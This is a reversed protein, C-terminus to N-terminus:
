EHDNETGGFMCFGSLLLLSLTSWAQDSQDFFLLEEFSRSDTNGYAVVWLKTPKARGGHKNLSHYKLFHCKGM